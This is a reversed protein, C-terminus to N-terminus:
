FYIDGCFTMEPFREFKIGRGRHFKRYHYVPIVICFIIIHCNGNASAKVTCACYHSQGHLQWLSTEAQQNIEGGNIDWYHSCLLAPVSFVHHTYMVTVDYHAHHCIVLTKITQAVTHEPASLFFAGFCRTVLRQSPFGRIGSVFPCYCPFHKWKIVDDHIQRSKHACRHCSKMSVILYYLKYDCQFVHFTNTTLAHNM